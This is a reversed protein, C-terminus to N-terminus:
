GVGIGHFVRPGFSAEGCLEVAAIRGTAKVLFFRGFLGAAQNIDELALRQMEM